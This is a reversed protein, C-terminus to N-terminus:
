DRVIEVAVRIINDGRQFLYTLLHGHELTTTYSQFLQYGDDLRDQVYANVRNALEASRMQRLKFVLSNNSRIVITHTRPSQFVLNIGQFAIEGATGAPSTRPKVSM